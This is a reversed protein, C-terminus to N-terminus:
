NRIALRSFDIKPYDKPLNFQKIESFAGSLEVGTPGAGVIVLNMLYEREHEDASLVDEFIQLIYNEFLSPKTPPKLPFSHKAIQDNGFFNTSCGQALILIDYPFSGISTFVM